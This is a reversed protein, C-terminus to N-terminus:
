ALYNTKPKRYCPIDRRKLLISREEKSNLEQYENTKCQIIFGKFTKHQYNKNGDQFDRKIISVIINKIQRPIVLILILVSPKLRMLVKPGIM